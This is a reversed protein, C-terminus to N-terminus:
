AGLNASSEKFSETQWSGSPREISWGAHASRRRLISFSRGSMATNFSIGKPEHSALRSVKSGPRAVALTRSWSRAIAFKCSIEVAMSLERGTGPVWLSEL